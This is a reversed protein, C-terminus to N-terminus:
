YLLNVASIKGPTTRVVTLSAGRPPRVTVRFRQNEALVEEPNAIVTFQEGTELILDGSASAPRIDIIRWQGDAPSTDALYLPGARTLLYVEEGTSWEVTMGSCDVPTNGATLGITFRVMDVRYVSGFLRGIGYVDGIIEIGSSAETMGTQIVEESKQISFFGAGLIAYSFVAAVVLFSILVIGAELGTFAEGADMGRRM